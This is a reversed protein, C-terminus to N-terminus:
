GLRTDIVQSLDVALRAPRGDVELVTVVDGRRQVVVDRPGALSRSTRTLRVHLVVSASTAASPDVPRSCSPAAAQLARVARGAGGPRYAAVETRVRRGDRTRFAGRHGAIRAAESPVAAGCLHLRDGPDLDEAGRAQVERYGPPLDGRRLDVQEVVAVAARATLGSPPRDTRASSPADGQFGAAAVAVVVLVAFGVWPLWPRQRDAAM